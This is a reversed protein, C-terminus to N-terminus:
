SAEKETGDVDMKKRRRRPKAQFAPDLHGLRTGAMSDKWLEYHGRRLAGVCTLVVALVEEHSGQVIPTPAGTLALKGAVTALSEHIFSALAPETEGVSALTEAVGDHAVAQRAHILYEPEVLMGDPKMDIDGQLPQIGALCQLLLWESRAAFM